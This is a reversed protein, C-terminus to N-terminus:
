RTPLPRGHLRPGSHLSAAPTLRESLTVLTTDHALGGDGRPARLNMPCPALSANGNTRTSVAVRDRRRHQPLDCAVVTSQIWPPTCHGRRLGRQQLRAGRMQGLQRGLNGGAGGSHCRRHVRGGPQSRALASRPRVPPRAAPTPRLTQDADPTTHHGPRALPRLCESGNGPPPRRPRTTNRRPADPDRHTPPEGASDM